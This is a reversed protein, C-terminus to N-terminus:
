YEKNTDYTNRTDCIVFPFYQCQEQNIVVRGNIYYGKSDRNRLLQKYSPEHRIQTTQTQKPMITDLLYQTTNKKRISHGTNGTEKSQWIRM